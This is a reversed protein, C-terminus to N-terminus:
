AALLRQVTRRGDRCGGGSTIGVDGISSIVRFSSAAPSDRREVNLRDTDAHESTTQARCARV